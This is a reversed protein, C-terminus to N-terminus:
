FSFISHGMEMFCQGHIIGIRTRLLSADFPEVVVTKRHSSDQYVAIEFTLPLAKLDDMAKVSVRLRRKGNELPIPRIFKDLGKVRVMM